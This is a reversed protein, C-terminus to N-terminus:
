TILYCHNSSHLVDLLKVVNPHDLEQLISIETKLLHSNATKMDKTKIVKVAYPFNKNNDKIAKYVSGSYGSGLKNKTHFTYPGIRKKNKPKSTLKEENDTEDLVASCNTSALHIYSPPKNIETM